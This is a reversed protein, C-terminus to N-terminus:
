QKNTIMLLYCLKGLLYDADNSAVYNCDCIFKDLFNYAIVLRFVSCYGDHMHVQFLNYMHLVLTVM